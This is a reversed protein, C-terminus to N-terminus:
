LRLRQGPHILNPNGGILPRNLNYLSTWGGPINFRRAIASLTDGPRVTYYRTGPHSVPPVVPPRPLPRPLRARTIPVRPPPTRIVRIPGQSGTPGKPGTPGAPGAPGAPGVPGPEGLSYNGAASGQMAQQLAAYDAPSMTNGGSTGGTAGNRSIRTVLFVLLGVGVLGGIILGKNKGLKKLPPKTGPDDSPM